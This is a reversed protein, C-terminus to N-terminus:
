EEADFDSAHTKWWKLLVQLEKKQQEAAATWPFRHGPFDARSALRVRLLAVRPLAKAPDGADKSLSAFLGELAEKESGPRRRVQAQADLNKAAYLLAWTENASQKVVGATMAAYFRTVVDDPIGSSEWFSGIQRTVDGSSDLNFHALFIFRWGEEGAAVLGYYADYQASSPNAGRPGSVLKTYRDGLGQPQDEGFATASSLLLVLLATKM